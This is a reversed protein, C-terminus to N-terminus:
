SERRQGFTMMASLVSLARSAIGPGGTVIARGRPGTKEDKATKGAAVDAQFRAVDLPTLGRALRTGLLPRVHRDINSRDTQWSSLKKNPKEVSGESLYLDALEGVTQAKRRERKDQSPDRGDLVAALLKTAKERAMEVTLIGYRGLVTKRTRGASNRYQLVFAKSERPISVYASGAFRRTGYRTNRKLGLSRRM